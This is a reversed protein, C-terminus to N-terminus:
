APKDGPMARGWDHCAFDVLKYDPYLKSAIPAGDLLASRQCLEETPFVHNSTVTYCIDLNCMLILATFM